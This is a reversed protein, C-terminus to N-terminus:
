EEEPIEECEIINSIDIDEIDEETNGEPNEYSDVLAIISNQLLQMDKQLSAFDASLAIPDVNGSSRLVNSVGSFYGVMYTTKDLITNILDENMGM